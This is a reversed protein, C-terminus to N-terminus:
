SWSNTLSDSWLSREYRVDEMTRDDMLTKLNKMAKYEEETELIKYKEHLEIISQLHDCYFDRIERLIEEEIGEKWEEESIQEFIKQLRTM